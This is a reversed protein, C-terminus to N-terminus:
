YDPQHELSQTQDSMEALVLFIGLLADQEDFRVTIAGQREADAIALLSRHAEELHEPEREPGRRPAM